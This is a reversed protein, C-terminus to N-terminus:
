SSRMSPDRTDLGYFIGKTRRTKRVGLASLDHPIRSLNPNEPGGVSRFFRLIKENVETASMENESSYYLMVFIRTLTFQEDEISSVPLVGERKRLNAILEGKGEKEEEDTSTPLLPIRSKTVKRICSVLDRIFLEADRLDDVVEQVNRRNIRGLVDRVIPTYVHERVDTLEQFEVLGDIDVARLLAGPDNDKDKQARTERGDEPVTFAHVCNTLANNCLIARV